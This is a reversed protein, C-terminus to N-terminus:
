RQGRLPLVTAGAPLPGACYRDWEAMLRRRKEFLDGRRYAKEVKDGVAHALAMEVVHNPYNTREAAWDRFASRLGHVTTGPRMGRVLELMAMNSLPEGKRAGPFVYDGKHPLSDLIEVARDTLPVVHKKGAKMRGAPVTWTRAKIDIEDWIAGITEGTRAATLITFELARASTSDRDRLEAMFQPIEAFPLAAHHEVRRVKGKAPLLEALHGRWRAPNDGTRFGSVTAYGLVSEVRARLRSATEPIKRWIPEVTKVVHATDIDAVALDGLVPFAYTELTSRWQAAHKLNKWGDSHAALYMGACQRFTVAKAQEAKRALRERKVARRAELPDIGELIQQRLSRAKDRAEALSVSYLPGLGLEHRKFDQEYRFVWSRNIAGGSGSTVQLFLNGGDAL